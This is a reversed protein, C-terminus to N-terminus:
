IPEESLAIWPAIRIAVIYQRAYALITCETILPSNGERPAARVTTPPAAAGGRPRFQSRLEGCPACPVLLIRSVLLKILIYAQAVAM